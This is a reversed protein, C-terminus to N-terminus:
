LCSSGKGSLPGALIPILFHMLYFLILTYLHHILYLGVAKKRSHPGPAPQLLDFILMIFLLIVSGLWLFITILSFDEIYCGWAIGRGKELIGGIRFATSALMPSLFPTGVIAYTLMKIDAKEKSDLIKVENTFKHSFYRLSIIYGIIWIIVSASVALFRGEMKQIKRFSRIFNM